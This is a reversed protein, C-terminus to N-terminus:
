EENIAEKQFTKIDSQYTQLYIYGCRKWKFFIDSAFTLKKLFFPDKMQPAPNHRYKVALLYVPLSIM